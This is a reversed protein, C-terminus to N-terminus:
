AAKLLAKIKQAYERLADYPVRSHQREADLTLLREITALLDPANVIVAAVQVPTGPVLYALAKGEADVIAADKLTWPAKLKKMM